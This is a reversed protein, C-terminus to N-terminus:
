CPILAQDPYMQTGDDEALADEILVRLLQKTTLINNITLGRM